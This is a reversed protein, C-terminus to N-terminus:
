MRRTIFERSRPRLACPHIKQFYRDGGRSPWLRRLAAWLRKHRTRPETPTDTHPLGDERECPTQPADPATQSNHKGDPPEAPIGRYKEVYEEVAEKLASHFSLGRRMTTITFDEMLGAGINACITPTAMLMFRTKNHESM